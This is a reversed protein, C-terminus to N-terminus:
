KNLYDNPSKKYAKLRIKGEKIKEEAERRLEDLEQGSIEQGNPRILRTKYFFTQHPSYGISGYKDPYKKLREGSKDIPTLEYFCEIDESSIPVIVPEGDNITIAMIGCYNNIPHYGEIGSEGLIVDRAKKARAALDIAYGLLKKEVEDDIMPLRARAKEMEEDPIGAIKEMLFEPKLIFGYTKEQVSIDKWGFGNDDYWFENRDSIYVETAFMFIGPEYKNDGRTSLEKSRHIIKGESINRRFAEYNREAGGKARSTFTHVCAGPINMLYQFVGFERNNELFEKFEEPTIYIELVQNLEGPTTEGKDVMENFRRAEDAVKSMWDEGYSEVMKSAFQRQANERYYSNWLEDNTMRSEADSIEEPSPIYHEGEPMEPNAM